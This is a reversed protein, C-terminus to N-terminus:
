GQGKNDNMRGQNETQKQQQDGQQDHQDFNTETHESDLSQTITMNQRSVKHFLYGKEKERM